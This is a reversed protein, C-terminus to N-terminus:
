IHKKLTIRKKNSRKKRSFNAGGTTKSAFPNISNVAGLGLGAIGSVLDTTAKAGTAAVDTVANATTTTADSVANTASTTVDSAAKVSTATIDSAAKTADGVIETPSKPPAPAPTLVPQTELQKKIFSIINTRDEKKYIIWGDPPPGKPMASLYLENNMKEWYIRGAGMPDTQLSSM